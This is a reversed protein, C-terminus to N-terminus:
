DRCRRKGEVRLRRVATMMGDAWILSCKAMQNCRERHSTLSSRLYRFLLLNPRFKVSRGDEHWRRSEEEAASPANEVEGIHRLKEM